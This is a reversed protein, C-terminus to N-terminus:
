RTPRASSSRRWRRWTRSEHQAEIAQRTRRASQHVVSAVAAAVVVFLVLAAANQPSNITLTGVPDTFFWNIILSSAVACAIAPWVGGVLACAVTLCLYVLMELPLAPTSRGPALLVTLALNGVAALVWGGLRRRGSLSRRRPRRVPQRPDDRSVLHVDIDGSGDAVDDAIGRAFLSRWGRHRSTGIVIQSANVGRAFDLIAEGM